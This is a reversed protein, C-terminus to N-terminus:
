IIAPLPHPDGQPQVCEAVAVSLCPWGDARLVIPDNVGSGLGKKAVEKPPSGGAGSSWLPLNRHLGSKLSPGLLSTVARHARGYSLTGTRWSDDEDAAEPTERYRGARQGM